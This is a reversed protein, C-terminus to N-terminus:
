LLLSFNVIKCKVPPLSVPVEAQVEWIWFSPILQENVVSPIWPEM